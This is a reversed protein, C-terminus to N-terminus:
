EAYIMTKVAFLDMIYLCGRRLMVPLMILRLRTILADPASPTNPVARAVVGVAAEVVLLAERARSQPAVPSCSHVGASM